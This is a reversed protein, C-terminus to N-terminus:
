GCKIASMHVFSYPFTQITIFKKQGPQAANLPMCVLGGAIQYLSVLAQHKILVSLIKIKKGSWNLSRLQVPNLEDTITELTMTVETIFRDYEGKEGIMMYKAYEDSRFHRVSQGLSETVCSRALQLQVPPYKRETM